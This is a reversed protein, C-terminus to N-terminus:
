ERLSHVIKTCPHLKPDIKNAPFIHIMKRKWITKTKEILLVIVMTKSLTKDREFGYAVKRTIIYKEEFTEMKVREM